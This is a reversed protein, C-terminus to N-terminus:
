RASLGQDLVSQSHSVFIPSSWARQRESALCDDSENTGYDGRCPSTSEVNGIEDFEARLNEANITPIPEELVRVYYVAERGEEAFSSDTFEVSCGAESPECDFVRWPDQILEAIPEEEDLQPRIKIIEIREIRYREDSPHYCEGAAMKELRRRELSAVVYEPCGPLQKFSGVANVRFHPNDALTVESGMPRRGEPASEDLLDFWLLIRHGSTGYVERRKMADWIADRSRAQAHVAALGGATMFSATREFESAYLKASVPDIQDATLSLGTPPPIKATGRSLSEWFPGRIGNADTVPKRQQQKFGHGARASHTDTSAVFGWRYGRGKGSSHFDRLALGYQASKRPRYNFAPLFVDRAQGADLWEEPQSDPVTMFGHITDIQVFNHRAETARQECVLLPLGEASCRQRIINGAQWCAPLYNAQPEPCYWNGKDDRRRVAFDRYVESNGHGSYVEILGTREPDGERLQHRWNAGPPTYFGWSTGHPIVINDFGWEDLKRYLQSPLAVSEYCDAPLLPSPKSPDCAPTAAMEEVWLNYDAYYRRHRPDVIGLTGPLRSSKTRAAVTAVGAGKSAIPRRPLLEPNDDKFLVNHHGYHEEATAGVQTWEWGIFAVLDPNPSGGAIRNCQQVSSISDQWQRPTFSEAHDTLFYFDLQSIFRAYDCAFAPPFAGRAGYMLPLSYMFADASNTTHVHTDGFLIQKESSVPLTLQAAQQAAARSNIMEEPLRAPTERGSELPSMEWWHHPDPFFGPFIRYAADPARGSFILFCALLLVPTVIFFARKM